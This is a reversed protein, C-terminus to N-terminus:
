YLTRIVKRIERDARQRPTMMASGGGFSGVNIGSTGTKTDSGSVGSAVNSGSDPEIPMPLPYPISGREAGYNLSMKVIGTEASNDSNRPESHFPEALAATSALLLAVLLIAPLQVRNKVIPDEM